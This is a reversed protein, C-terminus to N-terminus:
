TIIEKPKPFLLKKKLLLNMLWADVGVHLILKGHNHGATVTVELCLTGKGDGEIVPLAVTSIDYCVEV